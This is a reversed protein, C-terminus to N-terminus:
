RQQFLIPVTYQTRVSKGKIKGPIWKPSKKMVRLAEKELAPHQKRGVLEMNSLSGDRNVVFTVIVRGFAGHAKAPYKIHAKVFEYFKSYGGPYEPFVDVRIHVNGKIIAGRSPGCVPEDIKGLQNTVTKEPSGQNPINRKCSLCNFGVLFLIVPLSGRFDIKGLYKM